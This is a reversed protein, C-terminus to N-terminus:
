LISATYIFKSIASSQVCLRCQKSSKGLPHLPLQILSSFAFLRLSTSINISLQGMKNLLVLVHVNQQLEKKNALIVFDQPM